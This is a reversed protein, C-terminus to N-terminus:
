KMKDGTIYWHLSGALYFTAKKLELQTLWTRKKEGVMQIISFVSTGGTNEAFSPCVGYQIYLCISLKAEPTKYSSKDFSSVFFKANKEQL